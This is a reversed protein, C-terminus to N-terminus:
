FTNIYKIKVLKEIAGIFSFGKVGGGSLCITDYM